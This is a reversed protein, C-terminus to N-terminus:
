QKVAELRALETRVSDRQPLLVSDAFRRLDLYERYVRMAGTRDGVLAALRRESGDSCQAFLSRVAFILPVASAVVRM